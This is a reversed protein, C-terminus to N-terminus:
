NSNRKMRLPDGSEWNPRTMRAVKVLYNFNTLHICSVGVLRHGKAGDMRACNFSSRKLSRVNTQCCGCYSIDNWNEMVRKKTMDGCLRWVSFMIRQVLLTRLVAPSSVVKMHQINSLTRKTDAEKRVFIEQIANGLYEKAAGALADGAANMFEKGVGGLLEQFNM